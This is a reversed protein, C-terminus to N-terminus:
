CEGNESMASWGGDQERWLAKGDKSNEEKRNKM